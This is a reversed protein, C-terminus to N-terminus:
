YLRDRYSTEIQEKLGAVTQDEIRCQDVLVEALDFGDGDPAEAEGRTWLKSRILAKACQFYCEQVEVVIGVVPRKGNVSLPTLVDEDRTVCARGNIRLTEGVGPVLFLLGIRGTEIVNKLSDARRNGPRDALILTTEDLVTAVSPLDGRPSVDCSGDAGSTGLLLFPSRAIFARMHADLHDLQKRIVLESPLGILAELEEASRVIRDPDPRNM